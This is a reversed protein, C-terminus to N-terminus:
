SSKPKATKQQDLDPQAPSQQDLNQKDAGQNDTSQQNPNETEVPAVVEKDSASELQSLDFEKIAETVAIKAPLPLVILRMQKKEKNATPFDFFETLPKCENKSFYGDYNLDMYILDKGYDNFCGNGDTDFIRFKVIKEAKGSMIKTEGDLFSAAIAEVRLDSNTKKTLTQISVFYYLGKQLENTLGKYSVRVPVPILSTAQLIKFGRNNGESTLLSKVKEKATIKFDLNQDIYFDTWYGQPDKGMVFWVKKDNNGLRFAGFKPDVLKEYEFTLQLQEPKSETLEALSESYLFDKSVLDFYTLTKLKVAYVGELQVPLKSSFGLLFFALLLIGLLYIKKM